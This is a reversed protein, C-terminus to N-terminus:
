VLPYNERQICNLDHHLCGRTSFFQGSGEKICNPNGRLIPMAELSIATSAGEFLRSGGKDIEQLFIISLCQRMQLLRHTPEIAGNTGRRARCVVM